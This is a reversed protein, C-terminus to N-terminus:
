LLVLWWVQGPDRSFLQIRKDTMDDDDDGEIKNVPVVPTMYAANSSAALM